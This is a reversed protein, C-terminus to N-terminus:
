RNQEQVSVRLAMHHPVRDNVGEGVLVGHDDCVEGTIAGGEARWHRVVVGGIGLPLDAVIEDLHHLCEAVVLEGDGSVVAASADGVSHCEIVGFADGGHGVASTHRLASACRARV